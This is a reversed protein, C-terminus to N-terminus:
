NVLDFKSKELLAVVFVVRRNHVKPRDEVLQRVVVLLLEELKQGASIPNRDQAQLRQGDGDLFDAVVVEQWDSM